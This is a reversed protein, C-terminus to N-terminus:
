KITRGVVHYHVCECFQKSTELELFEVAKESNESPM